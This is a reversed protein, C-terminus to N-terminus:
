MKILSEDEVYELEKGEYKVNTMDTVDSLDVKYIYNKMNQDKDKGQEIVLLTDDDVAYIYGIKCDKPSIYYETKVPYAYM